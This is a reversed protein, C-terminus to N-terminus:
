IIYFLLALRSKCFPNEKLLLFGKKGKLTKIRSRCLCKIKNSFKETCTQLTSQSKKTRKRGVNKRLTSVEKLLFYVLKWNNLLFCKRYGRYYQVIRLPTMVFVLTMM